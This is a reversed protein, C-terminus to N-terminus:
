LHNFIQASVCKRKNYKYKFSIPKIIEIFHEKEKDNKFFPETGDDYLCFEIKSKDYDLKLLNSLILRKFKNRNYIPMIISVHPYDEERAINSISYSM